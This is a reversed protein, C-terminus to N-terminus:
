DIYVCMHFEMWADVSGGGGLGNCVGKPQALQFHGSQLTMMMKATLNTHLKM